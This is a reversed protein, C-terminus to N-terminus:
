NRQKLLWDVAESGDTAGGSEFNRKPEASRLATPRTAASPPSTDHPRGGENTAGGNGAATAPTRSRETQAAPARAAEPKMAARVERPAAPTPGSSKETPITVPRPPVTPSAPAEVPNDVTPLPEESQSKATVPVREGSVAGAVGKPRSRAVQRAGEDVLIEVTRALRRGEFMDYAVKVQGGPRIDEFWGEKAGVTVRTNRTVVLPVIGGGFPGSNVHITSSEVKSVWGVTEGDPQARQPVPAYDAPDSPWVFAGAALLVLGGAAIWFTLARKSTSFGRSPM